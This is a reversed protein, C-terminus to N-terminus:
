IQTIFRHNQLPFPPGFRGTTKRSENAKGTIKTVTNKLKEGNKTRAVIQNERLKSLGLHHIKPFLNTDLRIQDTCLKPAFGKPKLQIRDIKTAAKKQTRGSLSETRLGQKTALFKAFKKL